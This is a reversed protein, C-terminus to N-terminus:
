VMDEFDLKYKIGEAHRLEGDVNWSSLLWLSSTTVLNSQM